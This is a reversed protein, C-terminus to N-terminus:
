AAIRAFAQKVASHDRVPLTQECNANRLVTNASDIPAYDLGGNADLGDLLMGTEADITGLFELALEFQINTM